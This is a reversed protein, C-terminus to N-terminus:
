KAVLKLSMRHEKPEILLVQFDYTEGLKLQEEMKEKSEFESIHCLSRIKPMIEVFAGFASFKTVKGKIVDSKKYQKEIEEWPNARLAKLSLFVQNNNIDIIKAKVTEGVKVVEAPNEVLQWDLESIHILGEIQDNKNEAPFPFKIFAGFDAIGTIEGDITDGKSYNKLTEKTKEESKAKESLILKNEQALLDLIKVELTKGIFKQLEKLIKQKDADIVRPYHEPALQSVPLFAQINDIATLLGGKNVGTIRVSLIQGSDKLEKLRQWSIEKTADRLSLERYGEDNEVEVIKAFVKDGIDLNKIVDKVSYFERGYIIGTGHIGLDIFLSSRDRAVVKGEITAGVQLPNIAEATKKGGAPPNNEKTM